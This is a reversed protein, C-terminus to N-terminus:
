VDVAVFEAGTWRGAGPSPWLPGLLIRGDDAFSHLLEWAREPEPHQPSACGPRCTSRVSPSTDSTRPPRLMSRIASTSCTTGPQPGRDVGATMGPLVRAGDAYTSSWTTPSCNAGCTARGTTVPRPDFGAASADSVNITANPFFPVWASTASTPESPTRRSPRGVDGAGRHTVARGRLGPRDSHGRLRVRGGDGASPRRRVPADHFIDDANGFPDIVVHRYWPQRVWAAAGVRIQGNASWRDDNWPVDDIEDATLGTAAPDILADTYLVRTLRPRRDHDADTRWTSETLGSGVRNTPGIGSRGRRGLDDPPPDIPVTSGAVAVPDRRRRHRRDGVRHAHRAQRRGPPGRQRLGPRHHVAVRHLRHRGGCRRRLHTGM